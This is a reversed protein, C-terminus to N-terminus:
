KRPKWDPHQRKKDTYKQNARKQGKEHTGLTSPRAGARHEAPYINSGTAEECSPFTEGLAGNSPNIADIIPPAVNKQWENLAIAGIIAVTAGEIIKYIPIVWVVLGEPDVANVPDNGVYGYLNSSGGNFDIPDKATWRGTFPDYDRYGFRVLKTDRDYLGEAFDLPIDLNDLSQDLYGTSLSQDSQNLINGFSDYDIQKVIQDSQNRIAKLSRSRSNLFTHNCIM